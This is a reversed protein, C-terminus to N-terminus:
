QKITKLNTFISIDPDFMLSHNYRNKNKLLYEKPVISYHINKKRVKKAPYNFRYEFTKIIGSNNVLFIKNKKGLKIQLMENPKLTANIYLSLDGIYGKEVFYSLQSPIEITYPDNDICNQCKKSAIRKETPNLECVFVSDIFYYDGSVDRFNTYIKNTNKKYYQIKGNNLQKEITQIPVKRNREMIKIMAEDNTESFKGLTIYNENGSANFYFDCKKWTTDVDFVTYDAIVKKSKYLKYYFPSLKYDHMENSNFVVTDQSLKIGLGNGHYKGRYSKVYFGAKYLHNKKLPEKLKGTIHEIYGYENILILAICYNGSYVKICTDLGVEHSKIFNDNCSNLDRYIDPTGDTPVFWNKAYFSDLSGMKVNLNKQVEEFSPNFVLNQCFTSSVLLICIVELIFIRGM